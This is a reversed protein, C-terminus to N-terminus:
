QPAEHETFKVKLYVDALPLDCAISGIRITESLSSSEALLWNGSAQRSFCEVHPRDQVILLYDQLSDLQRYQEFKAGRDYGETSESLVEVLVRPNVLTDGHDDEFQPDGCALSLDPYTYLRTPSVKVRMDSPYVQCDSDRLQNNLITILNGCVLNHERSAGAMAFVEGQYFQSKFSANREQQLYESETLYSKPVSSM